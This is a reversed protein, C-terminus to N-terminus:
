EESSSYAAFRWSINSILVIMRQPRAASRAKICWISSHQNSNSIAMESTRRRDLESMAVRCLRFTMLASEALWRHLKKHHHHDRFKEVIAWVHSGSSGQSSFKSWSKRIMSELDSHYNAPLDFGTMCRRTFVLFLCLSASLDTLSIISVLIIRHLRYVSLLYRSGGRCRYWFHKSINRIYSWLHM